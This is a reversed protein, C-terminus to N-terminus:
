YVGSRLDSCGLRNTSRVLGVQCTKAMKCSEAGILPTLTLWLFRHQEFSLVATIALLGSHFCRNGYQSNEGHKEEPATDSRGVFDDTQM